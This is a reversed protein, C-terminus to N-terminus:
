DIIFSENAQSLRLIKSFQENSIQKLVTRTQDGIIGNDLLQKRNIRKPLAMNYTFRIIYPYRKEKYFRSLEDANFVSFRSCYRIYSDETQFESIHRVDEVVCVSSVVSRYYASGVEDKTRYMVLIDGRRLNNAGYAASIYIKHISNSHSVDKIIDPSEGFLKSEPFMRTHYEPKIALLYKNANQQHIFPYDQYIHNKFVHLDRLYVLETGNQSVKEGNKEFGYFKFLKILPEHKEFVTLYVIDVHNTVAIDLIKKIFRQGRLTGAPNFKFTGVKMVSKGRIPPNVDEVDSEFKYYLFGEILNNDNYLVYARENSKTRFWNSFEKYDKKLSDFFPDDLNVDSFLVVKLNDM